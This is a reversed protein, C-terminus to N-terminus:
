ERSGEWNEWCWYCRRKKNTQQRVAEIQNSHSLSVFSHSSLCLLSCVVILLEKVNLNVTTRRGKSFAFSAFLLSRSTSASHCVRNL